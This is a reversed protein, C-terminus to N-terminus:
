YLGGQEYWAEKQNEEIREEEEEVRQPHQDCPYSPDIWSEHYKKSKPNHCSYPSGGYGSDDIGTNHVVDKKLYPCSHCTLRECGECEDM